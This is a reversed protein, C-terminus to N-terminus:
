RHRQPTLAAPAISIKDEARKLLDKKIIPWRDYAKSGPLLDAASLGTSTIDESYIIMLEKRKQADLLHVLRVSMMAQPMNYGHARILTDIHELDSGHKVDADKGRVWTDVYFDRGGISAHEPSDYTHHLEPRTPLYSEFQVWYLHQVTKQPDADVFVHLECDAIDYLVWRDAGVYQVSRPLRIQVKPDHASTIVNKGVKREPADRQAFLSGALVVAIIQKLLRYEECYECTLHLRHAKPIPLFQPERPRRTFRTACVSHV